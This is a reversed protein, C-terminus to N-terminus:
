LWKLNYFHMNIKTYIFAPIVQIELEGVWNKVKWKTSGDLKNKCM